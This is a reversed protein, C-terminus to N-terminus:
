TSRFPDVYVDDIHWTAASGRTSFVFTLEQTGTSSWQSAIGLRMTPAWGLPAADGNVDFATQAVAGNDPNRVIVEVHLVSGRVGPNKVFLRIVDEGKSVCITRSEATAGYPIRLSYNDNSNRVKWTENGTVVSAGGALKWEATGSEFGGNPMLFYQSRDGWRSFVASESRATCAVPTGHASAPTASLATMAAAGVAAVAALRHRLRRSAQLGPRHAPRATPPPAHHSAHM